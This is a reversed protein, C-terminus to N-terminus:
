AKAYAVNQSAGKQNTKEFVSKLIDLEKESKITPLEKVYKIIEYGAKKVLDEFYLEYVMSNLIKEFHNFVVLYEKLDQQKKLILLYDVIKEFPAQQAKSIQPIPIQEVYQKTYRKRGGAITATIQFLYFDAVKSNLIALIYKLDNGSIFYASNTLFMGTDDFTFNARDSIEIWVIKPKEFQQFYATYDQIEYWKYSGSKRGVKESSKKKPLLEHYYNQLYSKVIPFNEIKIGQRTFIIYKKEFSYRWRKIDKGRLLPKIIEASNADEKIIENKDNEDIHFAKNYGTTIGRFFNISNWESLRTGLEEVLNNIKQTIADNVKWINEDLDKLIIKNEDFYERLDRKPLQEGKIACAEL